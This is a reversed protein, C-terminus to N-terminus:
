TGPLLVMKALRLRQRSPYFLLRRALPSFPLPPVLLTCTSFIQSRILSYSHTLFYIVQLKAPGRIILTFSDHLLFAPIMGNIHGYGNLTLHALAERKMPSGLPVDVANGGFRMFLM